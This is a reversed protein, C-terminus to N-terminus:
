FHSVPDLFMNLYELPFFFNNLSVLLLHRALFNTSYNAWMNQLIAISYELQVKYGTQSVSWKSVLDIKPEVHKEWYSVLKEPWMKKREEVEEGYEMRTDLPILEHFEKKVKSSTEKGLNDDCM